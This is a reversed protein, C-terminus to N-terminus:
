RRLGGRREEKRFATPALGFRKAFASGFHSVNGFGCRSAAQAISLDTGTLLNRAAELRLEVLYAHPTTGLAARFLRTFHFKSVGAEAALDELTLPDQAHASMYEVVRALRGDAIIGPPRHEGVAIAGGHASLLHTALWQVAAEAYLDPQGDAMGRLLAVAVQAVVPDQFALATMPRAQPRQGARRYHETVDHFAQQPVYLNVKEFPMSRGRLRRRLRDTHGGPTMGVTGARYTAQRWTGDKFSVLDQEGRTMVVVTQDPTPATEFVEESPEVRHREVLLATWGCSVSSAVVESPLATSCRLSAPSFGSPRGPAM